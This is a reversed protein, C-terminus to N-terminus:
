IWGCCFGTSQSAASRFRCRVAANDSVAIM